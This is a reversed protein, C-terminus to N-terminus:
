QAQLPAKEHSESEPNKPRNRKRSLKAATASHQGPIWIPDHENDFEEGGVDDDDVPLCRLYQAFVDGTASQQVVVGQCRYFLSELQRGGDEGEDQQMDSGSVSTDQRDSGSAYNAGRPPLSLLDVGRLQRTEDARDIIPWGATEWSVGGTNGGFISSTRLFHSEDRLSQGHACLSLHLNHTFLQRGSAGATVIVDREKNMNELKNNSQVSQVPLTAKRIFHTGGPVPRQALGSRTHRLDMLVLDEDQGMFLYNDDRVNMSETSQSCNTQQMTLLSSICIPANVILHCKSSERMDKMYLSDGHSLLCLQPHVHSEINVDKWGKAFTSLVSEPFVSKGPALVRRPGMEPCITHLEISNNDEVLFFSSSCASKSGTMCRITGKALDWRQVPDLIIPRSEWFHPIIPEQVDPPVRSLEDRLNLTQLHYLSHASRVLLTSSTNYQTMGWAEVQEIQLGGLPLVFGSTSSFEKTTPPVPRPQEHEPAPPLDMLGPQLDEAYRLVLQDHCKGATHVFLSHDEHQFGLTM